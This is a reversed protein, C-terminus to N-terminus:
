KNGMMIGVVYRVIVMGFFTCNDMLSAVANFMKELGATYLSIRAVQFGIQEKKQIGFMKTSASYTKSRKLVKMKM